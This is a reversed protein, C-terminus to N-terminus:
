SDVLGEIRVPGESASREGIRIARACPYCTGLKGRSRPTNVETENQAERECGDIQCEVIRMGSIEVVM